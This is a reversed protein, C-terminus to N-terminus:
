TTRKAVIIVDLDTNGDGATVHPRIFEPNPQILEIGLATMVLAAGNASKLTAWTTGGDNSGEITVAGAVGLTGLLQVTMDASAAMQVKIGEDDDLLAEWVYKTTRSGINSSTPTINAM